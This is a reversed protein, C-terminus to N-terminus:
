CMMDRGVGGDDQQLTRHWVISLVAGSVDNDKKKAVYLKHTDM